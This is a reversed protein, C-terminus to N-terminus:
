YKQEKIKQNLNKKEEEFNPKFAKVILFLVELNQLQKLSRLNVLLFYASFSPYSTSTILLALPSEKLVATTM